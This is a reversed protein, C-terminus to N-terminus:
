MGNQSHCIPYVFENRVFRLGVDHVNSVSPVVFCFLTSPCRELDLDLKLHLDSTLSLIFIM